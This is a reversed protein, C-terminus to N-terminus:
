NKGKFNYHGSIDFFPSVHFSKKIKKLHNKKNFTSKSLYFHRQGFTNHVEYIQAIVKNKSNTITYISLPNFVYGFFRPHTLLYINKVEEKFNNKLLLHKIWKILDKNGMPGYDKFYFSFINFKNISMIPINSFIEKEKMIDFHLYFVKYKFSHSKPSKRTHFVVGEYICNDLCNINSKM